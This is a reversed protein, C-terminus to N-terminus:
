IKGRRRVRGNGTKGPDTVAEDRRGRGLVRREELDWGLWAGNGPESRGILYGVVLSGSGIREGRLGVCNKEERSVQSEWEGVGLKGRLGLFRSYLPRGSKEGKGSAKDGYHRRRGLTPAGAASKPHREGERWCSWRLALVRYVKSHVGVSENCGSLRSLADSRKAEEEVVKCRITDCRGLGLNLWIRKREERKM